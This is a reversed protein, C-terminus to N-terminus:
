EVSLLVEGTNVAQGQTVLIKQVRGSKPSKIENQMKMAEMVILGQGSEVQQGEQVLLRVVKGPMLAVVSQHGQLIAKAGPGRARTRPDRVSAHCRRGNVDCTYAGVPGASTSDGTEREIHITFSGGDILISYVGPVIQTADAICPIGDIRWSKRSGNEIEVTHERGDITILFKM